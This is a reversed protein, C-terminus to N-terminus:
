ENDPREQTTGLKKKKMRKTERDPIRGLELDQCKECILVPPEVENSGCDRCYLTM